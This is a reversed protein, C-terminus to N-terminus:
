SAGSCTLPLVRCARHSPRLFLLCKFRQRLPDCADGPSKRNVADVADGASLQLEHPALLLCGLVVAFHAVIELGRPEALLVGAGRSLRGSAGGYPHRVARAHPSVHLSLGAGAGNRCGDAGAVEIRHPGCFVVPRRHIGAESVLLLDCGPDLRDSPLLLRSPRIPPPNMRDSRGLFVHSTSYLM